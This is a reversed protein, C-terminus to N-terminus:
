VDKDLVVRITRQRHLHRLGERCNGHHTLETATATSKTAATSAAASQAATAASQAAALTTLANTAADATARTAASEAATSEATTSAAATTCKIDWWSFDALNAHFCNTQLVAFFIWFRVDVVFNLRQTFQVVIRLDCLHHGHQGVILHSLRNGLSGCPVHSIVLRPLLQRHHITHLAHVSVEFPEESAVLQQESLLNHSNRLM